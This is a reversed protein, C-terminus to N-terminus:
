PAKIRAEIEGITTAEGEGPCAQVKFTKLELFGDEGVDGSLLQASWPSAPMLAVGPHAEESLKATVVVDGSATELRIPGGAEVGMDKMDSGDLAVVASQDRYGESYVGLMEEVEQFIGRYTIVTLEKGAM